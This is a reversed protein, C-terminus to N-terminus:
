SPCAIDEEPRERPAPPPLHPKGIAILTDVLGSWDHGHPARVFRVRARYTPQNKRRKEAM